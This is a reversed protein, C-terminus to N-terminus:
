RDLAVRVGLDKTQEGFQARTEIASGLVLDLRDQGHAHIRGADDVGLRALGLAIQAISGVSTDLLHGKVVGVLEVLGLLNRGVGLQVEADEGIVRGTEAAEALLEARGHVGRALQEFERLLEVEVDDAYGKVDARSGRVGLREDFGDLVGAEDEVLGGGQAEGHVREVDAAAECAVVGELGHSGHEGGGEVLVEWRRDADDALWAAVEHGGGKREGAVDDRAAGHGVGRQAGGRVHEVHVVAHVPVEGADDEVVLVGHRTHELVPVVDQVVGMARSVVGRRHDLVGDPSRGAIADIDDGRRAREWLGQIHIIPQVELVHARVGLARSRAEVTERIVVVHHVDAALRSGLGQKSKSPTRHRHEYTSM